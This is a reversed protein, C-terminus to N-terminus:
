FKMNLIAVANKGPEFTNDLFPIKPIIEIELGKNSTLIVKDAQWIKQGTNKVAVLGVLKGKSPIIPPFLIATIDLSNTQVPSGKPKPLNKVENYFNYFSGDKKKWSFIDFPPHQYHLIFPTVAVIRPDKWVSSFANKIRESIEDESKLNLQDNNPNKNQKEDETEHAWGTETIFVPFNKDVGMKKLLNLEWEFTKISGRGEKIEIGKSDYSPYSHSVWGDAYEFVNPKHSLMAKIFDEENMTEDSNPALADFGAPLVFFDQSAKKLEKAFNYFYEAYENPSIEGGWEKAHNPENGIIVYRNKVVWNLNNLFLVWEKIDELNPKEWKDPLQRTAIRVIPILHFRRLQNFFEQWRKPDKEDKRIVFTVYGWDGGNSNVLAKADDLDNENLIHIGFYNNPVTLPNEVASIENTFNTLLYFLLFTLLIVIRLCRNLM